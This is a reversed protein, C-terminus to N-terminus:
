KQNLAVKPNILKESIELKHIDNFYLAKFKSLDKNKILEVKEVQKEFNQYYKETIESLYLRSNEIDTTITKIKTELNQIKDLQSDKNKFSNVVISKNAENSNILKQNKNFSKADHDEQKELLKKLKFELNNKVVLKSKGYKKLETKLIKLNKLEAQIDLYIQNLNSQDESQILKAKQIIENILKKDLNKNQLNDIFQNIKNTLEQDYKELIIKLFELRKIAEEYNKNNKLHKLLHILENANFDIKSKLFEEKAFSRTTITALTKENKEEKWLLVTLIIGLAFASLDIIIAYVLKDTYALFGVIGGLGALNNLGVGFIGIAWAGIGGALVGTIFPILRPLNVAYICSETPGSIIGPVAAAVAASKDTAKRSRLAVGITAGMQAWAAAFAAALFISPNAGPQGLATVAAFFLINHVGLVVLPQWTLGVILAGIGFPLGMFWNFATLLSSEVVGMVPGFVFFALLGGIFLSLFPNLLFNVTSNLYKEMIKQFYAIVVGILIFALITSHFPKLIIEWNGLEFLKIGDIPIIPSVMILGLAIAIPTKGGLYRVTSWLAIVGMMKFGTSAIINLVLDFVNYDKGLVADKITSDSGLGSRILLQQFAMLLGVGILFPILPGFIASISKIFRKYWAVNQKINKNEYHIEFENLNKKPTKAIEKKFIETVISVDPGIILQLEGNSWLAGKLNTITKLEEVVPINPDHLALRMRTACHYVDKVNNFGGIKELINHVLLEHKNHKNM